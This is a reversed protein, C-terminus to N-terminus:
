YASFKENKELKKLYEFEISDNLKMLDVIEIKITDEKIQKTKSLYQLTSMRGVYEGYTMYERKLCEQQFDKDNDHKIKCSTLLSILAFIILIKKM